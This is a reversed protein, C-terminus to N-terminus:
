GILDNDELWKEAVAEIPLGEVDVQANLEQLVETTLADSVPQLM